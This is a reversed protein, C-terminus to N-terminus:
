EQSSRESPTSARITIAHLSGDKILDVICAYVAQQRKVRSVGEFQTSVLDIKLRSGDGELTVEADPFGSILRSRVDKLM